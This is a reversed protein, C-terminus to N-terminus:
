RSRERRIDEILKRFELLMQDGHDVADFHLNDSRDPRVLSQYVDAKIPTNAIFRLEEIEFIEHSLVQAIHEDSEFVSDKM